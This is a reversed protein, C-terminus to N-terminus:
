MFLSDIMSETLLPCMKEVDDFPVCRNKEIIKQEEINMTSQYLSDMEKYFLSKDYLLQTLFAHNIKDDIEDNVRILSDYKEYAKLYCSRANVSDNNLMYVHGKLLYKWPSDPVKYPMEEILTMADDLRRFCMYMKCRHSQIANEKDHIQRIQEEEDINNHVCVNVITGIIVILITILLKIYKLHNKMIFSCIDM